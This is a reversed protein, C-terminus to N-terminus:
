RKLKKLIIKEAEVATIYAKGNCDSCKKKLNPYFGLGGCTPCEEKFRAAIIEIIKKGPYKVEEENMLVGTQLKITRVREEANKGKLNKVIEKLIANYNGM